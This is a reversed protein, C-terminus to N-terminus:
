TEHITDTSYLVVGEREATQWLADTYGSRAFFTYNIHQVESQAMLVQAKSKLSDLINTGVSRNTWKCEGVLAHIGNGSLAVLNIEVNRTWWAGFNVAKFPLKGNRNLRKLFQLCVSEFVPAVFNAFHPRIRDALM